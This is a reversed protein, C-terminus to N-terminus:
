PIEEVQYRSFCMTVSEYDLPLGAKRKLERLFRRRDPIQQWVSPLFTASHAGERLLLGDIGPRLLSLLEEEGIHSLPEIPTLISIHLDLGDFEEPALPPFRSDEFAARYANLAVDCVLPRRAELVGTCGRLDGGRRLTVFTARPERWPEPYASADVELPRGHSLGHRISERAIELLGRNARADFGGGDESM